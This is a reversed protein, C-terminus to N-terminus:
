KFKVGNFILKLLQNKTLAVSELIEGKINIQYGTQLLQILHGLQFIDLETEPILYFLKQVKNVKMRLRM